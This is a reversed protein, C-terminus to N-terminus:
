FSYSVTLGGNVGKVKKGINAAVYADLGVQGFKGAYSAKCVFRNKNLEANNLTLDNKWEPWDQHGGEQYQTKAIVTKIKKCGNYFEHGYGLNLMFKSNEIDYSAALGIIVDTFQQTQAQNNFVFKYYDQVQAQANVKDMATYTHAKKRLCTHDVAIWPGFSFGSVSWPMYTVDLAVGFLNAKTKNVSPKQSTWLLGNQISGGIRNLLYDFDLQGVNYLEEADAIEICQEVNLTHIKDDSKVRGGYAMLKVNLTENLNMWKAYIGGYYIKHKSDGVTMYKKNDGSPIALKGKFKGRVFSAFAGITCNECVNSDVGIQLGYLNTTIKNNLDVGQLDYKYKSEEHSGFISAWLTVKEDSRIDLHNFINSAGSRTTQCAISSESIHRFEEGNVVPVTFGFLNGVLDNALNDNVVEQEGVPDNNNNMGFVASSNLLGCIFIPLVIKSVCKMINGKFNLIDADFQMKLLLDLM